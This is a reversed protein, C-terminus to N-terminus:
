PKSGPPCCCKGRKHKKDAERKENTYVPWRKLPTHMLMEINYANIWPDPEIYTGDELLKPDVTDRGRLHSLEHLITTDLDSEKAKLWNVRGAREGEEKRINLHLEEDWWAWWGPRPKVKAYIDEDLEKQYVELNREPSDIDEKIGKLLKKM